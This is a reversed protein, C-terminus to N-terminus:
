NYLSAVQIRADTLEAEDKTNGLRRDVGAIDRFSTRRPFCASLRFAERSNWFFDYGLTRHDMGAATKRFFKGPWLDVPEVWRHTRFDLSLENTSRRSFRVHMESGVSNGDNLV